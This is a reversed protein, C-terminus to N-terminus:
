TRLNNTSNKYGIYKRLLDAMLLTNIQFANNCLFAAIDTNVLEFTFYLCFMIYLLMNNFRLNIRPVVTTDCLM